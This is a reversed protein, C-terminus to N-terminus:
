FASFRGTLAIRAESQRVQALPVEVPRIRDWMGVASPVAIDTPEKADNAVVLLHQDASSRTVGMIRM